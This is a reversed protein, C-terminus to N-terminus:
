IENFSISPGHKLHYFCWCVMTISVWGDILTSFFFVFYQCWHTGLLEYCFMYKFCVVFKFCSHFQFMFHIIHEFLVCSITIIMNWTKSNFVMPMNWNNWVHNLWTIIIQIIVELDLFPIFTFVQSWHTSSSNTSVHVHLSQSMKFNYFKPNNFISPSTCIHM